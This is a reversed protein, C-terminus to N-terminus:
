RYVTIPTSVGVNNAADYAKVVLQIAGSMRRVNFKMNFPSSNSSDTLVGDVYLECRVVGVNDWVSVQVNVNGNVNQGNSPSTIAVTPPTTDPVSNAVDVSVQKSTRNGSTDEAVVTITHWGNGVTRSDWTHSYPSTTDVGQWVGDVFFEVFAVAVNDSATASIAVNGSVNANNSPATISLAPATTDRFKNNVTVSILDDGQNNAADV